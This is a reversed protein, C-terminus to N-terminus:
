DWVYREDCEIGYKNLFARYEEQFTRTRHHEEQTDIYHLLVHLDSPGVSFAGYGRQWAFSALAPSQIKLWKSSATKLEEVLQAMTITRSLRIALHVHDAVGGVRLCECDVNRTVTALYAYLTPRVTTDLVPARNKTSFVIHTLLYSLSQPM